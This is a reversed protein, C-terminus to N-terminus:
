RRAASRKFRKFFLQERYVAPRCCAARISRPLHQESPCGADPAGHDSDQFFLWRIRTIGYRDHVPQSKNLSPYEKRLYFVRIDKQISLSMRTKENYIM